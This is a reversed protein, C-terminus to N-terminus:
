STGAAQTGPPGEGGQVLVNQAVTVFDFDPDLSRYVGESVTGVRTLLMLDPPLRIPLDRLSDLLETGVSSWDQSGSSDLTDVVLSLAARAESRDVDAAVADLGILADLMADTDEAALGQYLGLLQGQMETDLQRSMGFDYIVLRGQDDVALNGPHPDAHFTGHITGMTLYVGAIRRALESPEVGVARLADHDTVSHGAVYEMTLVRETTAERCVAPIRVDDRGSLTSSVAEMMRAEREFDLEDLIVSEFDAALNQLSFEYQEPVLGVVVPVLTRLVALDTEVQAKVGPRRIKVAVDAGDYTGRYVYALSGGAIPELERDPGEGPDFAADLVASPEMERDEPVSDRLAALQEAYIPPVLDPRTSLVQGVKVFTPGLALLTERLARARDRHGGASQQRPAGALLWRHRDRAFAIAFPLLAYGVRLLRRWFRLM